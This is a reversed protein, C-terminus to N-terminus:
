GLLEDIRWRERWPLEVRDDTIRLPLVVLPSSELDAETWRDGIYVFGEGVPVVVSVQSEYTKAGAPAIDRWPSWPGSLEPAVSYKNDNMDWYTLDSGFLFYRADHKVLTPSEYGLEPRDQQHLTAVLSEASLYDDALRYIQLGNNRDESLLYAAEGEQYVGIDRSENGLPRESRRFEFPGAPDDAVAYGVRATEYGPTDLHLLMVWHGDPHRLVKPREVIRDPALEGSGAALADGEYRWTAFDDSSYCVVATFRDGAAKDEGWAYWRDGIPQVGIGHLQAVRGRDDLFVQGPVIEARTDADERDILWAAANLVLRRHDESDYSEGNHGLGDYVVQGTNVWVVAHELGDHEHTALVVADPQVRLYSYREDYLVFDDLGRTVPHELPLIRIEAASQPPHMTTGRVWRGGLIEEWRPDDPFATAVVHCALLAGGGAVYRHIGDVCAEDSPHAQAGSGFNLVVLDWGGASLDALATVVDTTLTVDYRSGLIDVLRASTEAFPHWPDSYDGSGSVILVTSM